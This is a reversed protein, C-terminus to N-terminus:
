EKRAVVMETDNTSVVLSPTGQRERTAFDLGGATATANLVPITASDVTQGERTVVVEFTDETPVLTLQSNAITVSAQSPASTFSRVMTEDTAIDVVYISDNGIVSWGTRQAEVTERWGIGGVPVRTRGQFALADKSVVTSWIYRQENVVILGSDNSAIRGHSVNEAYTVHYDGIAVAGEPVSDEAIGISNGYVSPFAIVITVLLLGVVLIRRTSVTWEFASSPVLFVVGPVLLLVGLSVATLVTMVGTGFLYLSGAVGVVVAVLWLGALARSIIGPWGDIEINEGVTVYTIIVSLLLVFIVGVGQYRVFEGGSTTSLQWLGRVFVVLVIGLFLRPGSPRQKRSWLVGLALLVGILFGLLHAQVNIAAWGPPQPPSSSATARLVPTLITNLLTSLLSIGVMGVVAPIPYRLLAFGFFAFVTGSFGISWGFAYLSTLLSVVIVVAPFIGVARVVPRHWLRSDDDTHQTTEDTGTPITAEGPTGDFEAPAPSDPVTGDDVPRGPTSTNEPTPRYHGWIYEALPAFVVTALMNGLLHGPSNHAFSSTLMGRVYPYAWNRFPLTVPSNWHNLGSQAFLYFAFVGTIVVLSGWPVGYIFRATLIRWLRDRGFLSIGFGLGVVLMAIIGVRTLLTVDVM